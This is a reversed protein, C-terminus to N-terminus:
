ARSKEGGGMDHVQASNGEMAEALQESIRDAADKLPNSGVHTYRQTSRSDVHGLLKGIMLLSMGSAAGASAFGHRLDHVRLDAIGARKRIRVWAWDINQIPRNSDKDSPFVYGSKTRKVGSLVTQAAAGLHVTKAGTKSDELTLVGPVKDVESWKLQAIENKRCGTLLLLRFVQAIKLNGSQEEIKLSAGLASLEDATLLRDRKGDKPRKIGKAPNPLSAGEKDRLLGAKIAYGFVGTLLGVTRSAAGKGGRAWPTRDKLKGAAIEAMLSEIDATTITSISRRGIAHPRIHRDVRIKDLAVTSAKKHGVGEALYKECLETLTLDNRARVRMAQPDKGLRVAASADGAAERAQAPTFDDGHVGLVYLRLQAKRGGDGARYRYIYTKRGSPAVRVGFGRLARDWVIFRDAEPKLSKLLSNNIDAVRGKSETM